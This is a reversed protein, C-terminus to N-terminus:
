KKTSKVPKKKSKGIKVGEEEEIAEKLLRREMEKYYRELLTQGPRIILYLLIGLIPIAINLLIAFTQFFLSNSRSISDRTVWIIISLWLLGVYVIGAMQFMQFSSSQAFEIIKNLYPM